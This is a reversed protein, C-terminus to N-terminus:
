PQEIFVFHSRKQLNELVIYSGSVSLSILINDEFYSYLQSFYTRMMFCLPSIFHQISHEHLSFRICVYQGTMFFQLTMLGYHLLM